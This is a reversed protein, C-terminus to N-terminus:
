FKTINGLASQLAEINSITPSLIAGNTPPGTAGGGNTFTITDRVFKLSTIVETLSDYVLKLLDDTNNGIQIKKSDSVTIKGAVDATLPTTVLDNIYKHSVIPVAFAHNISDKVPNDLSQPEKSHKWQELSKDSFFILLDDGKELSYDFVIRPSGVYGLPLKILGIDVGDSDKNHLKAQCFRVGSSDDEVTDYSQFFGPAFNFKSQDITNFVARVLDEYDEEDAM